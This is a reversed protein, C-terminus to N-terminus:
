QHWVKHWAIHAEMDFFRVLAACKGCSTLSMSGGRQVNVSFPETPFYENLEDPTAM